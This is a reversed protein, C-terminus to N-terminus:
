GALCTPRFTFLNYHRLYGQGKRPDIGNWGYCFRMNRKGGAMVSFRLDGGGETTEKKRGM